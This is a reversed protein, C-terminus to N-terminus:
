VMLPDDSHLHQGLLSYIKLIQNISGYIVTKQVVLFGGVKALPQKSAQVIVSVGITGCQHCIPYNEIIINLM